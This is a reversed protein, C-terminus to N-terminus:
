LPLERQGPQWSQLELAISALGRERIWKAAADITGWTKPRGDTTTVSFAGNRTEGEVYLHAGNGVIRVAKLAGADILVKLKQGDVPM